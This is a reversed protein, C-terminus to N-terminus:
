RAQLRNPHASRHAMCNSTSAVHNVVTNFQVSFPQRLLLVALLNSAEASVLLVLVTRLSTLARAHSLHLIAQPLFSLSQMYHMIIIASVCSSSRAQLHMHSWTCGANLQKLTARCAIVYSSEREHTVLKGNARPGAGQGGVLLTRAGQVGATEGAAVARARHRYVVVFVCAFSTISLDSPRKPPLPTRPTGPGSPIVNIALMTDALM